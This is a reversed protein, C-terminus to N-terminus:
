EKVAQDHWKIEEIYQKFMLVLNEDLRYSCGSHALLHCCKCLTILNDLSVIEEKTQCQKVPIIHHCHLEQESKCLVCCHKDRSLIEPKLVLSVYRRYTLRELKDPHNNLYIKARLRKKINDEPHISSHLKRRIKIKDKTEQKAEHLSKYFLINDRHLIYHQKRKNLISVRNKQYYEKYYEKNKSM